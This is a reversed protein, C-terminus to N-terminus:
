GAGYPPVNQGLASRPDAPAPPKPKSETHAGSPRVHGGPVAVRVLRWDGAEERAGWLGDADARNRRAAEAEADARNM